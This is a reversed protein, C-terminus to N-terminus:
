QRCEGTVTDFWPGSKACSDDYVMPHPHKSASSNGSCDGSSDCDTEVYTDAGTLSTIDLLGSQPEWLYPAKINGNTTEIIRAITGGAGTSLNYASGNAHILGGDEAILVKINAAQPSIVAIGTGHIHIKANNGVAKGSTLIMNPQMGADVTTRLVSGYVHVESDSEVSIPMNRSSPGTVHAHIESSFLWSDGCRSVYGLANGATSTVTIRSNFWYHKGKLGPTCTALFGAFDLWGYSTGNVDVNTWTSTGGGAWVITNFKSPDHSVALDQFNLNTCNQVSVGSYDTPKGITTSTRGSGILSVYGAGGAGGQCNFKEFLGPGIRVVLPAAASPVRSSNNPAGSGWMWDLLEPMTGFCDDTVGCDKRLYVVSAGDNVVAMAAPSFVILAIVGLLHKYVTNSM